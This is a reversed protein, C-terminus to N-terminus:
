LAQLFGGPVNKTLWCAGTKTVLCDDEVRLGGFGSLYVGPEITVIDGELLVDDSFRSIRPAEHLELGLGHGLGHTFAQGYGASSIVSRAISDVESTRIGPRVHRFAEEQARELLSHLSLALSPVKGIAINRTVDCLYGDVRAGFDLTIWEGECVPKDTPTGHPLASRLGSAVIFEHEGWTSEAGNMRISFELRAAIQRETMGPELVPLLEELAAACLKGARAVCGAEAPTKIRRLDEVFSSGDIWEMGTQGFLFRAVSHLIRRYELAVKGAKWNQLIELVSSILGGSGQEAIELSTQEAAQRLYRGDTVLVCRDLGVVLASHSGKFGSLYYVNEWNRGELCFVVLANAGAQWIKERLNSLRVSFVDGSEKGAPSMGTGSTGMTGGFLEGSM